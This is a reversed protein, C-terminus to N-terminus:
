ILSFARANERSKDGFLFWPLRNWLLHRYRIVKWCKRGVRTSSQFSVDSSSKPPANKQKAAKPLGWRRRHTLNTQISISPVLLFRLHSASLPWVICTKEQLFTSRRANYRRAQHWKVTQQINSALQKVFDIASCDNMLGTLNRDPNEWRQMSTNILKIPYETLLLIITPVTVHCLISTPHTQNGHCCAVDASKEWPDRKQVHLSKEGEDMFDKAKSLTFVRTHLCAWGYLSDTM